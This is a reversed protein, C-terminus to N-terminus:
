LWSMVIAARACAFIFRNLNRDCRTAMRRCDKLRAIRCEIRYRREDLEAERPIPAIRCKGAPICPYSGKDRLAKRFRDVDRGRDASLVGAIPLGGHLARAGIDEGTGGGSFLM